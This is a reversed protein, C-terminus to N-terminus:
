KKDITYFNIEIRRNLKRGTPLNNEGIVVKEGDSRIVGLPMSEGYGQAPDTRKMIRKYMDPYNKEIYDLFSDHFSIARTRSLNLNYPAKGIACAHGNFRFRKQPDSLIEEISELINAWYFSYLPDAKNFQLPFAVTHERLDAKGIPLFPRPYSKFVRDL